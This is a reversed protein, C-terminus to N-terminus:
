DVSGHGEGVYGISRCDHVVLVLRGVDTHDAKFWVPNTRVALQGCTNMM